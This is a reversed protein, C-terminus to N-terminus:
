ENDMSERVREEIAEPNLHDNITDNIQEQTKEIMKTQGQKVANNVGEQLEDSFTKTKPVAKKIINFLFPAVSKSPKLLWSAEREEAFDGKEVPIMMILHATLSAMLVGKLMGIFVGGGRNLTNVPTKKVLKHLVVAIIRFAVIVGIFISLFGLATAAFPPMEMLKAIFAAAWEVQRLALVYAVVMGVLTFVELIIGRILGKIVFFVVILILVIDFLNM